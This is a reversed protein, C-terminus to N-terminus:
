DRDGGLRQDPIDIDKAQEESMDERIKNKVHNM